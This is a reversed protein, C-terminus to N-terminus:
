KKDDKRMFWERLLILDKDKESQWFWKKPDPWKLSGNLIGTILTMELNEKAAQRNEGKILDSVNLKEAPLAKFYCKKYRIQNPVSHKYLQYLNEIHDLTVTDTSLVFGNVPIGKDILTKGNAKVTHSTFDVTLM